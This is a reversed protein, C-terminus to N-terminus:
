NTLGILFGMGMGISYMVFVTWFFKTRPMLILNNARIHAAIANHIAHEIATM